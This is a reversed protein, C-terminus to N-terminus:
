YRRHDPRVPAFAPLWEFISIMVPTCRRLRQVGSCFSAQSLRAVSGPIDTDSTARSAPMLLPWSKWHRLAYRSPESTAAPRDKVSGGPNKWEAKAWLEVNRLGSEFASLRVLPTNGILDLVSQSTRPLGPTVAPM